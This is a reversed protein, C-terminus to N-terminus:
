VFEDGDDFFTFLGDRLCARPLKKLRSLRNEPFLNLDPREAEGDSGSRRRTAPASRM